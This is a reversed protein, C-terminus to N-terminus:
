RVDFGVQASMRDQLQDAGPLTMM